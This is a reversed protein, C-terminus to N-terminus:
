RKNQISITMVAEAARIGDVAASIIGGAYGAGEGTPYLGAITVSQKSDDRVLRVPASTRTEVGTLVAGPMAFGNIKRDFSELAEELMATVYGPLCDHLDCPKLGPLYTAWSAEELTGTDRGSLFDGVLQAPANYNGGGVRYAAKEWKRQFEVGALPHINEFDDPNVSVVVASNATGTDRGYDSMGNTVVTNKESAAAVVRGGPCMCFTYAARGLDKNKHVLQYDAAGLRPHGAFSGYQAEDIKDQPHEVRLGISFSKQEMLCGSQELMQYTDRASHGIAMIVSEAPFESEGNIIVGRVRGEKVALGTVLSGFYIEGGMAELTYRLNKVVERLRDTGIHPKNLYLIEEPAGAAVLDRLVYRVRRDNVRTTLKGDSFTGAGGEGFQVNSETNLVRNLWFNDVDGTRNDVDTGREFVLPRCGNRALTLAAFIGAPGAGVVVPRGKSSVGVPFAIDEPEPERETVGTIKRRAVSRAAKKGLVVDVTYVFFLRDKKRADLAKKIITYKIIEGPAVALRRGIYRSIDGSDSDIDVKIDSVRYVMGVGAAEFSSLAIGRLRFVM